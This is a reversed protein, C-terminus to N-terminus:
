QHDQVISPTAALGDASLVAHPADQTDQQQRKIDQVQQIASKWIGRAAGQGATSNKIAAQPDACIHMIDIPMYQECDFLRVRLTHCEALHLHVGTPTDAHLLDATDGSPAM